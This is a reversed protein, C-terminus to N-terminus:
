ALEAAIADSIQRGHFRGNEIFIENTHMGAVIVGALYIGRRESELTRPDTVPKKTEPQITIGMSALFPLDPRYGTMALVFDNTITISGEPTAIDIEDVRIAKVASNFYAKVEGSRIRNEINPKIWYKVSDSIAPGHHILTVRAGTWFLELSAIAASNKAGVVAVDMNWYPHAEEYYHRVKALNEGPCGIPNPVDYFGTALIVRRVRYHRAKGCRDESDIAFDGASGSVGLVPEYQHVDLKYHEAVRRYYKLGETRTPKDGLSIMPLDGIELLEPTTFFVM